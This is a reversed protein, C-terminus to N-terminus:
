QAPAAPAAPAATQAAPATEAPAPTATSATATAPKAAEPHEAKRVADNEARREAAEKAEEMFRSQALAPATYAGAILAIAFVPLVSKRFSM